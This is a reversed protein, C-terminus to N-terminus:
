QFLEHELGVTSTKMSGIALRLPPIWKYRTSLLTQHVTASETQLKRSAYGHGYPCSMVCCRPHDLVLACQGSLCIGLEHCPPWDQANQPMASVLVDANVDDALVTSRPQRRRLDACGSRRYCCCCCPSQRKLQQKLGITTTLLASATCCHAPPISAPKSQTTAFPHYKALLSQIYSVPHM